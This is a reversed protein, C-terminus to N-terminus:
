RWHPFGVLTQSTEDWLKFKFATLSEKLPMENRLPAGGSAALQRPLFYNPIKPDLHHVHHINIYAFFWEFFRPLKLHSSGHSAADWFDWQESRQWYAHEFQHQVFFLWLGIIGGVMIGIFQVLMLVGLPEGQAYATAYFGLWAANVFHISWREKSGRAAIYPIRMKIGFHAITGIVLFVFPNRYCRYLFRRWGAMAEFEAVTYTMIDGQGRRDLDGSTAHHLLHNLRWYAYPTLTTIGLAWGLYDNAKASRFYSRHSCDHQLNFLRVNFFGIFIALAISIAPWEAAFHIAAAWLGLYVLVTWGVQYISRFKDSRFPKRM